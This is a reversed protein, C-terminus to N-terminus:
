QTKCIDITGRFSTSSAPASEPCTATAYSHIFWHRVLLKCSPSYLSHQLASDWIVASVFVTYQQAYSGEERFRIVYCIGSCLLANIEM